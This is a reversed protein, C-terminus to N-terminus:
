PKRFRQEVSQAVDAPLARLKGLEDASPLRGRDGVASDVSSTWASCSMMTGTSCLLSAAAPSLASSRYDGWRRVPSVTPGPALGAGRAREAQGASIFGERAMLGLVVNRRARAREPGPSGQEGPLADGHGPERQRDAGIGFPRGMRVAAARERLVYGGVLELM